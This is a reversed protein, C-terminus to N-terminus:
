PTLALLEDLSSRMNDTGGPANNDQEPLEGGPGFDAPKVAPPVGGNPANQSGRVNGSGPALVCRANTNLPAGSTDLGNRYRTGEYGQTCPMPDFFTASLGFNAGNPTIVDRAAAIAQPAVVLLQELGAQRTVLVNSTTLLNAFVGGLSKGSERLLGSIQEAAAPANALITRIDGDSKSLQEAIVKANVGFDQIAQQSEVQTTLVTGADTILQLTQPLHETALQTFSSASDLLVQLSPGTGQTALYLEDVVTRLEDEPVSEVLKDLNLLVTENPLPLSTADKSIVSGETLYPQGDRRPRLDLYQEGVASRNAVVAEVDAPVQPADDRIRLDVEVGDNVLHLEDVRGIGVGRYTVEANTFIGGSDPLRVKVIYGAAGFMTDLGAYKAGVYSIGALAILVFVTIQVRVRRTIM